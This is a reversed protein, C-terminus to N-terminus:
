QWLTCLVAAVLTDKQSQEDYPLYAPDGEMSGELEFAEILRRSWSKGHLFLCTNSLGAQGMGVPQSGVAKPVSAIISPSRIGRLSACTNLSVNFFGHLVESM